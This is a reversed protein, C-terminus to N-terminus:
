IMFNKINRHFLSNKYKDQCLEKFNEATKPVVNQYLEFEIREAEAAGIKIDM